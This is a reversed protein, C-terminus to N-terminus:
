QAWPGNYAVVVILILVIVTIVIKKSLIKKTPKSPETNRQMSPSETKKDKLRQAHKGSIFTYGYYILLLPLLLQGIISGAVSAGDGKPIEVAIVAIVLWLMGLGVYIWGASKDKSSPKIEHNHQNDESM